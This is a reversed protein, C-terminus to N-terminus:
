GCRIIERASAGDIVYLDYDPEPLTITMRDYKECGVDYVISGPYDFFLGFTQEGKVVLFNHAGYMAETTELHNAEDRCFSRYRWGRKNIGRVAEGLGYVADADSLPYRYQTYDANGELYPVPGESSPIPVTVADTRIGTGFTYKRIM